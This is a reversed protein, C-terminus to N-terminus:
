LSEVGQYKVFKRNKQEDSLLGQETNIEALTEILVGNKAKGAAYISIGTGGSELGDLAIDSYKSKLTDDSRKLAYVLSGKERAAIVIGYDETKVGITITAYGEYGQSVSDALTSVGTALVQVQELIPSVAIKKNKGEAMLLLDFVDGPVLMNENSDLATVKLTIAREGPKLLESFKEVTSLGQLHQRLIAKGKSVRSKIVMGAIQDFDKVNLAGDPIYEAPVPRLSVSDATVIQGIELDFNPVLIQMFNSKEDFATILEQEKFDIYKNVSYAALGSLILAVALLVLHKYKQM